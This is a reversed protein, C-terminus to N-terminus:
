IWSGSVTAVSPRGIPNEHIALMTVMDPADDNPNHGLQSYSCLHSMFQGMESNAKYGDPYDPSEAFPFLVHAVVWPSNVIIRTEKNATSYKKQIATKGGMANIKEQIKDATRSGEKNSEFEAIQVNNRVLCQANLDDLLLPDIASSLYDAVDEPNMFYVADIDTDEFLVQLKGWTQAIAAQFTAGTAAGTGTALMDFFDKKIGKQVDKLLASMTM